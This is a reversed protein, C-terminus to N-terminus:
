WALNEREEEKIHDTQRLFYIFTKIIILVLANGTDHLKNQVFFRFNTLFGEESM